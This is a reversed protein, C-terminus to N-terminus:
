KGARADCAFQGLRKTMEAMTAQSTRIAPFLLIPSYHDASRAHSNKSNTLYIEPHGVTMM